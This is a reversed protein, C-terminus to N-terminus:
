FCTKEPSALLIHVRWRIGQTPASHEQLVQKASQCSSLINWRPLTKEGSTGLSSLGQRWSVQVSITTIQLLIYPFNLPFNEWNKLEVSFQDSFCISYSHILVNNSQVSVWPSSSSAVGPPAVALGMGRMDRISSVSFEKRPLAQNQLPSSPFGAHLLFSQHWGPKTPLLHSISGEQHCNSAQDQRRRLRSYRHETMRPDKQFNIKNSIIHM